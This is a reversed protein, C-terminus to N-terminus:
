ERQKVCLLVPVREVPGSEDNDSIPISISAAQFDIETKQFQIIRILNSLANRYSHLRM